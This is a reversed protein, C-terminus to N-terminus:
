IRAAVTKTAKSQVVDKVLSMVRPPIADTKTSLQTIQGRSVAIRKRDINRRAEPSMHLTKGSPSVWQILLDEHSASVCIGFVTNWEEGDSDLVFGSIKTHFVSGPGRQSVEDPTAPPGARQKNSKSADKKGRLSQLKALPKDSLAPTIDVTSQETCQRKSKSPADSASQVSEEATGTDTGLQCDIPTEEQGRTRKSAKARQNVTRLKAQPEAAGVGSRARQRLANRARTAVHGTGSSRMVLEEYSSAGVGAPDLVPEAAICADTLVNHLTRMANKLKQSQKTPLDRRLTSQTIRAGLQALLEQLRAVEDQETSADKAAATDATTDPSGDRSSDTALSDATQQDALVSPQASNKSFKGGNEQYEQLAALHKCTVGRQAQQCSCMNHRLSVQQPKSTSTSQVQWVNGSLRKIIGSKVIQQAKVRLQEAYRVSRKADSSGAHISGETRLIQSFLSSEPHDPSGILEIILEIPDVNIRRHLVRHKILNWHSEVLNTTADMDRHQSRHWLGWKAMVEHTTWREQLYKVASPFTDEYREKFRELFNQAQQANQSKFLASLREGMEARVSVLGVRTMMNECCAKHAHFVCLFIKSRCAADLRDHLSAALGNPDSGRLHKLATDDCVKAALDQAKDYTEWKDASVSVPTAPSTADPLSPIEALLAQCEGLGRLMRQKVEGHLGMETAADHLQAVAFSVASRLKAAQFIAWAAHGHACKDMMKATLNVRSNSNAEILRYSWVLARVLGDKRYGAPRQESDGSVYLMYAIPVGKHSYPSRLMWVFLKSRYKILGGTDDEYTTVSLSQAYTPNQTLEKMTKNQIFVWADHSGGEVGLEDHLVFSDTTDETIYQKLAAWMTNKGRRKVKMRYLSNLVYRQTPQTRLMGHLKGLKGALVAAKLEPQTAIRHPLSAFSYTDSDAVHEMLKPMARLVELPSDHAVKNFTKRLAEDVHPHVPLGHYWMYSLEEQPGYKNPFHDPPPKKCPVHNHAGCVRVICENSKGNLTVFAKCPCEELDLMQKRRLPLECACKYQLTVVKEPAHTSVSDHKFLCGQMKAVKNLLAGAEDLRGSEFVVAAPQEIPDALLGSAISDSSEADEPSSTSLLQPLEERGYWTTWMRAQHLQKSEASAQPYQPSGTLSAIRGGKMRAKFYGLELGLCFFQMRDENLIGCPSDELWQWVAVMRARLQRSRETLDTSGVAADHFALIGTSCAEEIKEFDIHTQTNYLYAGIADLLEHVDLLKSHDGTSGRSLPTNYEFYESLVAWASEDYLAIRELATHFVLCKQKDEIETPLHGDKFAGMVNLLQRTAEKCYHLVATFQTNHLRVRGIMQFLTAADSPADHIIVRACRPNHVGLAMATTSVIVPLDGALWRDLDSKMSSAQKESSPQGHYKGVVTKGLLKALAGQAIRCSECTRVFVIVSQNALDLDSLFRPIYAFQLQGNKLTKLLSEEPLDGPADAALMHPLVTRVNKSSKGSQQGSRVFAASQSLNFQEQLSLYDKHTLSASMLLMPVAPHAEKLLHVDRMSERFTSWARYVHVEDFCISRLNPGAAKLAEHLARQELHQEPSTVIVISGEVFSEPRAQLRPNCVKSGEWDAACEAITPMRGAQLARMCHSAGSESLPNLSCLVGASLMDQCMSHQLARTPAVFVHVGRLAAALLAVTGTKGGGTPVNVVADRGAYMHGVTQVQFPHAQAVPGWLRRAQDHLALQEMTSEVSTAALLNADQEQINPEPPHQTAADADQMARFLAAAESATNGPRGAAAVPASLPLGAAAGPTVDEVRQSAKNVMKQLLSASTVNSTDHLLRLVVARIDDQVHQAPVAQSRKRLDGIVQAKGFKFAEAVSTALGKDIGFKLKQCDGMYLQSCHSTVECMADSAGAM